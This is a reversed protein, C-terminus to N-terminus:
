SKSAKGFAICHGVLIGIPLQLLLWAIILTM